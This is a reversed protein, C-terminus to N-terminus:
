APLERPERVLSAWAGLLALLAGVAMAWRYGQVFAAVAAPDGGGALLAKWGGPGLGHAAIGGLLAVSLAMGLVRMTALFAGAFSLDPLSVSGMVASTNPASFAALGLGVVALALVMPPLSTGGGLAALMAMGLAVLVMGATALIRSGLRDSLRGAVPALVAQTLPQGLLIWGATRPSLGLALQLHAATLLGIAFLATYNLLAAGSAALFTRRHAVRSMDILPHCRSRQRLWFAVGLPGALALPVWTTPASWGWHSALSLPVLLGLLALALLLVSVGDLNEPRQTTAPEKRLLVWGWALVLVGVPLNVLFIWRWSAVEVLLGGLPPGVSLGAYVAMVNIGLARGRAERPFAATVLAASTAGLLAGGIGQVVRGALLLGAGHALAALLSGLTFVGAGVLYAALRGRADALRGLPLLLVAMTLLYSAQTWLTAAFTLQLDAGIVPLAVSLISGDLPAMFAGVSTLILLATPREPATM